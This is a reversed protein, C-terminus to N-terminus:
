KTIAAWPVKALLEVIKIVYELVPWTIFGSLQGLPFYILSMIGTIFILAMSLPILPLVLINALPAILSVRGFQWWILPFVALQAGLTEVLPLKIGDPLKKLRKREFMKKFLPSLYILGAFALFSLQFGVDYRLVFPNVIVMIVAALLILNTQDAQRGILGAFLILSSFIAARVVSSSAGTMLVFLLIFILGYVFIRKRGLRPIFLASFIFIMITINYGSLAIVHTLGTKNLATMLNDPINRKVGLLIGAALSAHPETLVSNLASEFHDSWDYLGGILRGWINQDHGLFVLSKPQNILGFVLYRKLYSAYDFDDFVPPKTVTGTIQLIDDYKYAPFRPVTILIRSKANESGGFGVGPTRNPRFEVILKQNKFDVQPRAVIKGSIEIETNFPLAVVNKSEFWSYDLIGMFLFILTFSILILVTNRLLLNVFALFVLCVITLLIIPWVRTFDLGVFSAILVGALFFLALITFIRYPYYINEFKKTWFQKLCEGSHQNAQTTM